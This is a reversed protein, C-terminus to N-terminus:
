SLIKGLIYHPIKRGLIYQMYSREQTSLLQFGIKEFFIKAEETMTSVRVGRVHNEKLFSFYTEMLRRGIGEHRFDQDLNIHLIAPYDRTLHTLSFENEFFSRSLNWLFRWNTRKLFDGKFIAKLFVEPLIFFLFTWKVKKENLAGTLYGVIRDGCVAVFSAKTDYDTFYKTLLDEIIEPNSCYNEAHGLLATQYSIRRVVTRDRPQYKRIVVEHGQNM